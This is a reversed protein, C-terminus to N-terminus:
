TSIRYVEVIEVLKGLQGERILMNLIVSYTFENPRCNKEVMKSFLSLTEEVMLNKALAQIITNYAILNPSGIKSLMEKFLALSEDPKGIKGTMRIMITYTYEDPECHKRKMDKFINYTQDVQGEVHNLTKASVSNYRSRLLGRRFHLM